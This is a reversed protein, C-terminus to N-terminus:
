PMVNIPKIKWMARLQVTDLQFMAHGSFKSSEFRDGDKLNM